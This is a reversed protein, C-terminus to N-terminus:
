ETLEDGAGELSVVTKGALLKQGPLLEVPGEFRLYLGNTSGLDTVVAKGDQVKISFHRGSMYPDRVVVSCEPLAGVIVEEGEKLAYRTEIKSFEDCVILSLGPEQIEQPKEVQNQLNEPAQVEPQVLSEINNNKIDNQTNM